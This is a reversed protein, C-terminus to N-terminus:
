ASRERVEAVRLVITDGERSFAIGEARAMAEVEDQRLPRYPPEGMDGEPGDAPELELLVRVTADDGPQARLHIEAPPGADDSLLLLCAPLLHRLGTRAVCWPGDEVENRLAVGRFGFSSSLLDVTEAVAERVSVVQSPDPALWAIVDLCSRVATRSFGTIRVAGERVDDLKPEPARLRRELVEGAMTIPQLHAMMDHRIAFALRRLLAYRAAEVAAATAAASAAASHTTPSNM